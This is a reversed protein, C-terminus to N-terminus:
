DTNPPVQRIPKDVMIQITPIFSPTFDISEQYTFGNLRKLGDCSAKITITYSQAPAEIRPSIILNTTVVKKGESAFPIDTLIDQSSLYINAWDPTNLVELHIKQMPGIPGGYLIYFNFPYPIVDFVGPIDTWYSITIPIAISVDIQLPDNLPSLDYEIDMYSNFAIARSANTEDAKINESIPIITLLSLILICFIFCGKRTIHKSM